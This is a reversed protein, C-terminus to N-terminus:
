KLTFIVDYCRGGGGIVVAQTFEIAVCAMSVLIHQLLYTKLGNKRGIAVLRTPETHNSNTLVGVM